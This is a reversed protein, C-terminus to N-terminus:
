LKLFFFTSGSIMFYHQQQSYQSDAVYPSHMHWSIDDTDGDDIAESFDNFM